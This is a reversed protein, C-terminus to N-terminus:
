ERGRPDSSAGAEWRGVPAAEEVTGRCGGGAGKGSTGARRRRAESAQVEQAKHGRGTATAGRGV